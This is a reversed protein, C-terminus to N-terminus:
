NVTKTINQTEMSVTEFHSLICGEISHEVDNTIKTRTKNKYSKDEKGLRSPNMQITFM